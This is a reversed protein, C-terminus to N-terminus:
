CPRADAAPDCARRATVLCAATSSRIPRGLREHLARTEAVLADRQRPSLRAWFSMTGLLGNVEDATHELLIPMATLRADEFLDSVFPRAIDYGGLWAWLESLNERREDAGALTQDLDRYVPWEGALEPATRALAGHFAEQDESSRPNELGFYSVLALTGEDTLADAIKTWSQDPDVWHIASASFAARYHGQPLDAEELSANVFRVDGAGGLRDQARAILHEGPEVATVELGRALLSRTLHGTGCGIELVSAGPALGADECARDILAEPYGPRHRDYQEAIEDFVKGYSVNVM